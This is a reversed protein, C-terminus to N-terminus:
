DHEYDDTSTSLSGDENKSVTVTIHNGYTAEMTDDDIASIIAYIEDYAENNLKKEDSVPVDEYKSARSNWIRDGKTYEYDHDEGPEDTFDPILSDTNVRFVCEDGDNFYPTYQNWSFSNLKPYKSFVEAFRDVFDDPLADDAMKWASVLKPTLSLDPAQDLPQDFVLKYIPQADPITREVPDWTPVDVPWGITLEDKGAAFAWKTATLLDLGALGIGLSQLLVRRNLEHSM